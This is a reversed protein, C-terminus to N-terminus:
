KDMQKMLQKLGIKLADAIFENRKPKLETQNKGEKIWKKVALDTIRQAMSEIESKDEEVMRCYFQPYDNSKKKLKRM